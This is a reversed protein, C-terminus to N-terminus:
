KPPTRYSELRTSYVMDGLWDHTETEEMLGYQGEKPNSM